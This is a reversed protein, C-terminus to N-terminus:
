DKEKIKRKREEFMKKDKNRGINTQRDRQRVRDVPSNFDCLRFSEQRHYHDNDFVINWLTRENTTVERLTSNTQKNRSLGGL